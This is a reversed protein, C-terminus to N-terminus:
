RIYMPVPVGRRNMKWVAEGTGEVDPTDKGCPKTRLRDESIGRSILYSKIANARRESLARNYEDTGRQDCHGEIVLGLKPNGSMYEAIADLNKTESPVLMDSDYAFYIKPMNLRNGTPDAERWGDTSEINSGPLWPGVEGGNGIGGVVMPDNDAPPVNSLGDDPADSKCGAFGMVVLAVVASFLFFKKSM